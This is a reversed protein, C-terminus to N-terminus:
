FNLNLDLRIENASERRGGDLAGEYEITRTYSSRNHSINGAIILDVDSFELRKSLRIDTRDYSSFTTISSSGYYAISADYGSGLTKLLYFSGGYADYDDYNIDTKSESSIYAGTFRASLSGFTYNAIFEIGNRDYATVPAGSTDQYNYINELQEEFYRTELEFQNTRYLYIFERSIIEEVFNPDSLVPYYVPFASSVTSGYVERDLYFAAQNHELIEVGDILRKGQSYIAKLTNEHNVHINIGIRPSYEPNPLNYELSEAMFGVNLTLVSGLTYEANTFLKSKELSTKGNGFTVSDISRYELQFASSLRLNDTVTWIDSFTAMNSVTRYSTDQTGCVSSFSSPDSFIGNVISSLEQLQAPTAPPFPQNDLAALVLNPNERYLEGLGPYFFFQPGCLNWSFDWDRDYHFAEIKISHKEYDSQFSGSLM